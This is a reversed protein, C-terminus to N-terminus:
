AFVSPPRMWRSAGGPTSRHPSAPTTPAPRHPASSTTSPSATAPSRYAFPERSSSANLQLQDPYDSHNVSDLTGSNFDASSTFKHSTSQAGATRGLAGIALVLAVLGQRWGGHGTRM